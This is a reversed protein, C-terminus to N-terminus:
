KIEKKRFVLWTIMVIIIITLITVIGSSLLTEYFNDRALCFCSMTYVKVGLYNRLINCMFFIFCVSVAIAPAAKASIFTILVIISQMAILQLMVTICWYLDKIQFGELSFGNKMGVGTMTAAVYTFHLLVGSLFVPVERVFLVSLRSCGTTIENHITRNSFDNGVFWATILAPIVMFSTDCLTAAFGDYINAHPFKVFGYSGGLGIMLLIGFYFLGFCRFKSFEVKMQNCM